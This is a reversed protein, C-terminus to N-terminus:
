REGEKGPSLGLCVANSMENFTIGVEALCIILLAASATLGARFPHLNM